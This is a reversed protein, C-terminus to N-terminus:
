RQVRGAPRGPRLGIRRRGVGHQHPEVSELPREVQQEIQSPSLLHIQSPNRHEHQDILVNECYFPEAESGGAKLAGGVPQHHRRPEGPEFRPQQQRLVAFFRVVGLPRSANEDVAQSLHLAEPGLDGPEFCTRLEAAVRIGPPRRLPHRRGPCQRGIRHRGGSAIARSRERIPQTGSPASNARNRGGCRNATGTGAERAPRM